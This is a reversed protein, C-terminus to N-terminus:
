FVLLGYMVLLVFFIIIAATAHADLNFETSAELDELSTSSNIENTLELVREPKKKSTRVVTIDKKRSQPTSKKVSTKTLLPSTTTVEALNEMVVKKKHSRKKAKEPTASIVLNVETSPIALVPVNKDTLKTKKTKPKKEKTM